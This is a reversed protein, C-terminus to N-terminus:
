CRASKQGVDAIDAAMDAAVPGSGGGGGAGGRSSPAPASRYSPQPASRYAPAPSFSRQPQSQPSGFRDWSGGGANSRQAQAFGSQLSNERARLSASGSGDRAVERRVARRRLRGGSFASRAAAQQQAFPTRQAAAGGAPSMRSFFRQNGIEARPGAASTARGSFRLNNATPAIPM